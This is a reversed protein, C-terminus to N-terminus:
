RFRWINGKKDTYGIVILGKGQREELVNFNTKEDCKCPIRPKCTLGCYPCKFITADPRVMTM